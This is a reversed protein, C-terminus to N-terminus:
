GSWWSIFRGLADRIVGVAGKNSWYEERVMESYYQEAAKEVAYNYNQDFENMILHIFDERSLGVLDERSYNQEIWMKIRKVTGIVKM